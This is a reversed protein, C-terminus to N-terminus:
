VQIEDAFIYVSDMKEFKQGEEIPYQNYIEFKLM